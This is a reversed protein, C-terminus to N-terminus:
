RHRVWLWQRVDQDLQDLGLQFHTQLAEATLEAALESSVRALDFNRNEAGEMVTTLIKGAGLEAFSGYFELFAERGHTEVLYAVVNGAYLYEDATQEGIQDHEGLAAAETMTRLSVHGLGKRFLQRTQDFTVDGSFFVAAGEKLWPPTFPRTARALALHVLEHTITLHRMERTLRRWRGSLLGGNIFFARSDVAMSKGAWEYRVLAVGLARDTGAVRAFSQRDLTLHILYVPDLPLRQRQLDAYAAEAETAVEALAEQHSPHAYIRFHNTRHLTLEDERWFMRQGAGPHLAAVRWAKGERAFEFVPSYVMPNDEALGEIVLRLQTAALLREGQPRPDVLIEVAAEEIPILRLRQFIQREEPHSATLFTGLYTEIDYNQLARAQRDLLAELEELVPDAEASKAAQEFAERDVPVPALSVLALEPLDATQFELTEFSPSRLEILDEDLREYILWGEIKSGPALGSVTSLAELDPSIAIPPFERGFADALQFERGNLSGVLALSGEPPNELAVKLQLQQDDMAVGHVVFEVTRLAARLSRSRVPAPEDQVRAPPRESPAPPRQETEAATDVSMESVPERCSVLSWLAFILLPASIWRISRVIM